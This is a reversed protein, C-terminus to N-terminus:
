KLSEEGEDGSSELCGVLDSDGGFCSSLATSSSALGMSGNLGSPESPSSSAGLSSSSVSFVGCFMLEVFEM